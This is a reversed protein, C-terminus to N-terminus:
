TLALIGFDSVRVRGLGYDNRSSKREVIFAFKVRIRVRVRSNFEGRGSMELM